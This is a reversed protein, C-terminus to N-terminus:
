DAAWEIATLPRIVRTTNSPIVLSPANNILQGPQPVITAPAAQVNTYVLTSTSVVQTVPPLTHPGNSAGKVLLVGRWNPIATAANYLEFQQGLAGLETFNAGYSTLVMTGRPPIQVQFTSPQEHFPTPSILTVRNPTPNVFVLDRGIVSSPNQLNYTANMANPGLVYITRFADVTPITSLNGQQIVRIETDTPRGVPLALLSDLDRFNLGRIFLDLRGGPAAPSDDTLWIEDGPFGWTRVSLDNTLRQTQTEYSGGQPWIGIRASSTTQTTPLWRAVILAGERAVSVPPNKGGPEQASRTFVDIPIRGAKSTLQATRYQTPPNPGWTINNILTVGDLGQRIDIQYYASFDSM